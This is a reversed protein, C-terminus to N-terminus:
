GLLLTIMLMVRVAYQAKASDSMSSWIGSMEASFEAGAVSDGKQKILLMYIVSVAKRNKRQEALFLFYAGMPKKPANEDKPAKKSAKTPLGYLEKEKAYREKDKAAKDDYPKKENADLGHWM